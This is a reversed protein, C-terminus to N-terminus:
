HTFNILNDIALYFFIGKERKYIENNKKKVKMKIIKKRIIQM